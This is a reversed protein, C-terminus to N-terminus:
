SARLLAWDAASAGSRDGVALNERRRAAQTAADPIRLLAEAVCMLAVAERTSLGYLRLFSEASLAGPPAARVARALAHADRGIRESVEAPPQLALLRELAVSESPRHDRRLAARLEALALSM